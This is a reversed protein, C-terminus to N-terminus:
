QREFVCSFMTSAPHELDGTFLDFHTPSHTIEASKVRYTFGKAKMFDSTLKCQRVLANNIIPEKEYNVKNIPNSVYGDNSDFTDYVRYHTSVEMPLSKQSYDRMVVVPKTERNLVEYFKKTFESNFTQMANVVNIMNHKNNADETLSDAAKKLLFTNIDDYELTTNTSYQSM